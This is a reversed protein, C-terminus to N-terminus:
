CHHRPTSDSNTLPQGDEHEWLLEAEDKRVLSSVLLDHREVIGVIEVEVKLTPMLYTCSSNTM